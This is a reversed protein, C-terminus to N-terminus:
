HLGKCESIVNTDRAIHDQNRRTYYIMQFISSVVIIIILFAIIPLVALSNDM